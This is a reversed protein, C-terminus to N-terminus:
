TSEDSGSEEAVFADFGDWELEYATGGEVNGRQFDDECLAFPPVNDGVEAIITTPTNKCDKVNCRRLGWDMLLPITM